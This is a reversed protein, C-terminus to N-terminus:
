AMKLRLRILLTQPILPNSEEEATEAGPVQGLIPSIEEGALGKILNEICIIKSHGFQLSL